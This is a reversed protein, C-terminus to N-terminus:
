YALADDVRALLSELRKVSDKQRQLDDHLKEADELMADALSLDFALQFAVMANIKAPSAAGGISQQLSHISDNVKKAAREIHAKEEPDANLRIEHGGVSVQVQERAAM